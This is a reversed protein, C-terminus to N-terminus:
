RDDAEPRAKLGERRRRAERMLSQFAKDALLRKAVRRRFREECHTVRGLSAGTERALQRLPTQMQPEPVSWREDHCREVLAATEPRCAPDLRMDRAVEQMAADCRDRVMDGVTPGERDQRRDDLAYRRGRRGGDDFFEPLRVMRPPEDPRHRDQMDADRRKRRRQTIFPIRVGNMDEHLFRSISYQVRSMAFPAFSGHRAADHSRFAEVLAVFGEQLLDRRELRGHRGQGPVDMRELSLYVLPVHRQVIRRQRDSLGRLSIVRDSTKGM